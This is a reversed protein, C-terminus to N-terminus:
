ITKAMERYMTMVQNLMTQESFYEVVRERGSMGMSRAVNSNDLLYGIAEALKEPSRPPVLLGTEGESVLEPVGGVPTAIVPKGAAMAELITM